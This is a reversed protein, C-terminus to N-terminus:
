IALSRLPVIHFFGPPCSTGVSFFPPVSARHMDPSAREEATTGPGLRSMASPPLPPTLPSQACLLPSSLFPTRNKPGTEGPPVRGPPFFIVWKWLSLNKPLVGFIPTRSILPTLLNEVTDLPQIRPICESSFYYSRSLPFEFPRL